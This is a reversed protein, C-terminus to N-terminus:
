ALDRSRWCKNISMYQLEVLLSRWMLSRCSGCNLFNRLQTIPLTEVIFAATSMSRIIFTWPPKSRLFVCVAKKRAQVPLRLCHRQSSSLPRSPTPRGDVACIDHNFSVRLKAAGVSSTCPQQKTVTHVPKPLQCAFVVDWYLASSQCHLLLMQLAGNVM